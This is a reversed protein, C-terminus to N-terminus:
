EMVILSASSITTARLPTCRYRNKHEFSFLNDDGLSGAVQRAHIIASAWRSRSKGSISSCRRWAWCCVREPQHPPAGNGLAPFADFEQLDIRSVRLARNAEDLYRHRLGDPFKRHDILYRPVHIIMDGMRDDRIQQECARRAYTSFKAEGARFKLAAKCLGYFASAQLQDLLEKSSAHKMRRIM